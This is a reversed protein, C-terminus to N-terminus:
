SYKGDLVKKKQIGTLGNPKVEKDMNPDQTKGPATLPASLQPPLIDQSEMDAQEKDYDFKHINLEQAVMEAARKKSIYGNLEASSIDKIKVSSDHTILEPFIVDCEEGTLWTFLHKITKEIRLRKTEFRKATPETSTLASARTQGGSLHTGLYSIPIGTGMAIESLCWDFAGSQSGKSAGQNSLYQREVKKSHVFESGAPPLTGQTLQSQAYRDIDAQNGDVTTDIAWASAKQMAVLSYNVSDRLRKMYGLVAFLSSRGRKENSACNIKVHLVENAPVQQFIFKNSPVGPATYTQYQTPAVWQYFLVQRIDEPFTVIEWICSPDILRIRPLLGDPPEQDKKRMYSIFLENHPLKWIMSEGYVETEIFHQEILTELDNVKSFADWVAMAFPDDCQVTFGRGLVFDRYIDIVAKAAPDHHWAYFCASHMRIYDYYYLQKYFPGGLLPTYDQSNVTNTSSSDSDTAFFDNERLTIGKSYHKESQRVAELFNKNGSIRKRQGSLNSVIADIEVKPDKELCNVLEAFTHALLPNSSNSPTFRDSFEYTKPDFTLGNALTRVRFFDDQPQQSPIPVSLNKRRPAKRKRESQRSKKLRRAM